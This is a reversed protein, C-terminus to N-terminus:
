VFSPVLWPEHCFGAHEDFPTRGRLRALLAAADQILARIERSTMNQTVEPGQWPRGAELARLAERYQRIQEMLYSVAAERQPGM